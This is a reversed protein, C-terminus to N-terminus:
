SKAEPFTAMIAWVDSLLRTPTNCLTHYSYGQIRAMHDTKRDIEDPKAYIIVPIRKSRLTEYTDWLYSSRKDYRLIVLRHQEDISDVSRGNPSLMQLHPFFGTDQLLRHESAMDDDKSPIIALPRSLNKSLRRSKKFMFATLGAAGSATGAIVFLATIIDGVNAGAQLVDSMTLYRIGQYM